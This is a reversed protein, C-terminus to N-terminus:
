ETIASELLVINQYMISIYNDQNQYDEQFLNHLIHYDLKIMSYGLNVMSQFIANSLPSSSNREYLIHVINHYVAEQVIADKEQVTFQETEEHYGPSISMSEFGYDALLYGYINTATLAMKTQKHIVTQMANSLANLQNILTQYNTTLQEEQNPYKALFTEYVMRAAQIMRKPSMWFHPDLGLQHPDTSMPQTLEHDHDDDHHHVVGPILQVYLQNNADKATEVKVLNTDKGAFLDIFKQDIYPDFGVGVYFLFDATLMAKIDQANWDVSDHHNTVGPVLGSTLVNAGIKESLFQLPYVTSYVDYSEYTSQCALLLLTSFFLTFLLIGKKM